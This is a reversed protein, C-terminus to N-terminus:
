GDTACAFDHKVIHFLSAKSDTELQRAFLPDQVLCEEKIFHFHTPLLSENGPLTCEDLQLGFETTDM